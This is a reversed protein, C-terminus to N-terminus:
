VHQTRAKGSTNLATTPWILKTSLQHSGHTNYNKSRKAILSSTWFLKIRLPNIRKYILANSVHSTSVLILPCLFLLSNLCSSKAIFDKLLFLVYVLKFLILLFDYFKFKILENMKHHFVSGSTIFGSVFILLFYILTM